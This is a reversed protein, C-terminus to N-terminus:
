PGVRTRYFRASPVPSTSDTYQILGTSGAALTGDAFDTWPGAASAEWQVVYTIGPVGAFVVVRGTLTLTVSIKNLSPANTSTVTVNVTGQGTCRTDSLTYTVSDSGFFGAPPTYTIFQGNLVVTGHAASPSTVGIISLSGGIPSTDNALLKPVPANVPVGEITGL